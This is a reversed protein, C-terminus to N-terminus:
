EGWAKLAFEYMRSYSIHHCGAHLTYEEDISDVRFQGVHQTHRNHQYTEGRERLMQIFAWIRQGHGEPIEAGMTTQIIPGDARPVLRLYVGDTDWSRIYVNEGDLWKVLNERNAEIRALRQKEERAASEAHYKVSKEATVRLMDKTDDTIFFGKYGRKKWVYRNYANFHDLHLQLIQQLDDTVAEVDSFSSWVRKKNTYWAKKAAYNDWLSEANRKHDDPTRPNTFPVHFTFYVHSDLASRAESMHRDTTMSYKYNDMLVVTKGNIVYDTIRAVDTSYSRLVRGNYSLNHQANRAWEQSPRQAAWLHVIQRTKVVHRM